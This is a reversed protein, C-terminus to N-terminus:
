GDSELALRTKQFPATRAEAFEALFSRLLEGFGLAPSPPTEDVPPGIVTPASTLQRGDARVTEMLPRFVNATQAVVEKLDISDIENQLVYQTIGGGANTIGQESRVFALWDDITRYESQKPDLRQKRRFYWTGANALRTALDAAEPSDPKPLQELVSRAIARVERKIEQNSFDDPHTLPAFGYEVGRSSVIAFLQPNGLFEKENEKRFVGFWLDKPKAGRVGSAPNFGSTLKLVYDRSGGLVDLAIQGLRRLAGHVRVHADREDDSFDAYRDRSRSQRILEIDRSSIAEGDDSQRTVAFGLREVLAAVTSEGGSFSDPNLPGAQPFQFGYAAGVIAKSDYLKGDRSVFYARSPGFGYKRLFGERGLQDFEDLAATIADPDTLESLPM